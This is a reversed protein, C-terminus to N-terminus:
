LGRPRRRPPGSEMTEPDCAAREQPPPPTAEDNPATPAENPATRAACNPPPPPSAASAGATTASSPVMTPTTPSRNTMGATFLSVLEEKSMKGGEVQAHLYGIADSLAKDGDEAMRLLREAANKPGEEM